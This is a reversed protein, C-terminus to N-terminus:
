ELALLEEEEWEAETISDRIADVYDQEDSATHDNMGTSKYNSIEIGGRADKCVSTKHRSESLVGDM